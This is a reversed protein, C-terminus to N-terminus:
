AALAFRRNLYLCWHMLTVPSLSAPCPLGLAGGDWQSCFAVGAIAVNRNFIQSAVLTPWGYALHDTEFFYDLVRAADAWPLDILLWKDDSLSIEDAGPGVRKRRVGKDMVSASYCWGHVVLECHSFESKTWYRIAANPLGGKGKYMALQVVASM